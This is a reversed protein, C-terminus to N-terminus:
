NISLSYLCLKIKKINPNKVEDTIKYKIDNDTILKDVEVFLRFYKNNNKTNLNKKDIFYYNNQFQNKGQWKILDLDDEENIEDFLIYKNENDFLVPIFIKNNNEKDDMVKNVFSNFTNSYINSKNNYIILIKFKNNNNNDKNSEINISKDNYDILFPNTNEKVIKYSEKIVILSINDNLEFKESKFINNKLEIIKNFNEKIQINGKFQFIDNIHNNIKEPFKDFDSILNLYNNIENVNKDCKINDSIKLLNIVKDIDNFKNKMKNIEKENKKLIDKLKNIKADMINIYSNKVYEIYTLINNKNKIMNDIGENIDKNIKELKEITKNNEKEYLLDFIKMENLIDINLVFHEDNHENNGNNDNDNLCICDSCYPRHCDFCYYSAKIENTNNVEKKEKDEKIIKEENNNIDNSKADENNKEHIKNSCLVFVKDLNAKIKNSFYNNNNEKLLDLFSIIKRFASIEIFSEFNMNKRCYVCNGKSEYWKKLCNKCVFHHCHPCLLPNKFRSLCICCKMDEDLNNSLTEYIKKDENIKVDRKIIENDNTFNHSKFFLIYKEEKKKREKNNKMIKDNKINSFNIPDQLDMIKGENYFPYFPNEDQFLNNSNGNPINIEINNSNNNPIVSPIYNNSPNILIENFPNHYRQNLPVYNNSINNNTFLSM